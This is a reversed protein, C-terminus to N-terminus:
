SEKALDEAYYCHYEGNKAFYERSYEEPLKEKLCIIKSPSEHDAAYYSVGLFRKREEDLPKLRVYFDGLYQKNFEGHAYAAFYIVNSKVEGYVVEKIRAKYTHWSYFQWCIDVEELESQVVEENDSAKPQLNCDDVPPVGMHKLHKAKVHLFLEEAYAYQSILLSIIVIYRM